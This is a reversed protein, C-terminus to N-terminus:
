FSNIDFKPEKEKAPKPITAVPSVTGQSDVTRSPRTFTKLTDNFEIDFVNGADPTFRTKLYSVTAYLGPRDEDRTMCMVSIADASIARSGFMDDLRKRSVNTASKNQDKVTHSIYIVSFDLATRLRKFWKLTKKVVAEETLAPALSVTASDILIVDPKFAAVRQAFKIVMTDQENWFELPETSEAFIQFNEELLDLDAEDEPTFKELFEKTQDEPMELSLYLVKLSRGESSKWGFMERGLALHKCLEITLLTKGSGPPGVVYMNARRPLIGEIVYELSKATALFTRWGRTELLTPDSKVQDTKPTRQRVYDVLRIYESLPEPRDRYKGWDKDRWKLIAFIEENSMGMEACEYGLRTLADSRRVGQAKVQAANKFLLDVVDPDTFSYKAIVSTPKPVLMPNFSSESFEVKPVPVNKFASLPTFKQTKNLIAVEEHDRKHNVGSVPRLVKHGYWCGLDGHLAYTLAKNTDQLDALDTILNPSRWYWHEYGEVSSQVRMSPFPINKERLESENPINGDLETWFCLSGKIDAATSGGEKSYLAPGIYVDYDDRHKLVHDIIDQKQRPWAFSHKTWSGDKDHKGDLGLAKIPVYVWGTENGYLFDLQSELSEVPKLNRIAGV